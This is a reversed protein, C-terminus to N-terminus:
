FYFLIVIKLSIGEDHGEITQKSITENNISAPLCRISNPPTGIITENFLPRQRTPTNNAKGCVLFSFSIYYFYVTILFICVCARAREFVCVYVSACMCLLYDTKGKNSLVDWQDHCSSLPTSRDVLSPIRHSSRPPSVKAQHRQSM